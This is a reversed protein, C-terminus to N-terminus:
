PGGAARSGARAFSAQQYKTPAQRVLGNLHSIVLTALGAVDVHEFCRVTRCTKFMKNLCTINRCPSGALYCWSPADQNAPLYGPQFSDYGSMRPMTAGFFSLVATRNRFQYHGSRSYRRAAALHLPGTDGSVFVDAFDILVSYVALPMSQPIIRVKSRLLSPITDALREGIGAETHGAGLLITTDATTDRALLGLLAAQNEFPMLNFKNASDPNFMIVPSGPSLSAENAFRWAQDIVEDSHTTRVGRFCDGRVPQATMLLLGRVFQYAQYSFHNIQASDNENRVITPAHSMFSVFPQSPEALDKKELFTCFNLCLDYQGEGIIERLTEVDSLSPLRGDSYVPIIRTADPNGEILPAVTKNMVYDIGADPFFDRLALLASQMMVADGIHIDPIVLFRRFAKMRKMIRRSGHEFVASMARSGYVPRITWDLLHGGFVPFIDTLRSTGAFVIKQLRTDM